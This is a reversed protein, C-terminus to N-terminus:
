EEVLAITAPSIAPGPETGSAPWVADAITAPTNVPEMCAEWGNDTLIHLYLDAQQETQPETVHEIESGPVCYRITFQQEPM